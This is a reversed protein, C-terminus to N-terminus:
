RLRKMLPFDLARIADAREGADRHSRNSRREHAKDRKEAPM